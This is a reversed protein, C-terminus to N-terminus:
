DPTDGNSEIPTPLSKRARAQEKRKALNARLNAALKAKARAKEPTLKAKPEPKKGKVQDNEMM